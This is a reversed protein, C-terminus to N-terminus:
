GQRQRNPWPACHAAAHTGAAIAWGTMDSADEDGWKRSVGGSVEGARRRSPSQHLAPRLLLFFPFVPLEPGHIPCVGRPPCLARKVRAKVIGPLHGAAVERRM